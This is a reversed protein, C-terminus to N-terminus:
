PAGKFMYKSQSLKVHIEGLKCRVQASTDGVKALARCVVCTCVTIEGSSTTTRGIARGLEQEAFTSVRVRM